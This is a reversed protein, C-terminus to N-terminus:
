NTKEIIKMRMIDWLCQKQDNGLDLNTLVTKKNCRQQMLNGQMKLNNQTQETYDM